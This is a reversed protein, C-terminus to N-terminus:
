IIKPVKYLNSLNKINITGETPQKGMFSQMNQQGMPMQYMNGMPMQNGMSMPMQNQQTMLQQALPNYQPQLNQQITSDFNSINNGIQQMNSNVQAVAGLLNGIKNLNQNQNNEHPIFNSIMLPDIDNQNIQNQMQNGMYNQMQNPM